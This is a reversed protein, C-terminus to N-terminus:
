DVLIPGLAPIITVAPRARGMINRYYDLGNVATLNQFIDDTPKVDLGITPDKASFVNMYGDNALWLNTFFFRQPSETSTFTIYPQTATRAMAVGYNNIAARYLATPPLWWWLYEGFPDWQEPLVNGAQASDIRRLIPVDGFFCYNEYKLPPGTTGYTLTSVIMEVTNGYRTEVSSTIIVSGGGPFNM